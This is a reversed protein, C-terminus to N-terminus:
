RLEDDIFSRIRSVVDSEFDKIHISEIFDVLRVYDCIIEIGYEMVTDSMEDHSGWDTRQTEKSEEYQSNLKSIKRAIHLNSPKIASKLTDILNDESKLIEIIEDDTSYPFAKKIASALLEKQDEDM